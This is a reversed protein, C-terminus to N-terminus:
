KELILKHSESIGYSDEISILYFGAKLNTVDMEIHSKNIFNIEHAVLRGTIDTMTLVVKIAEDSSSGMRQIFIRDKAPNPFVNYIRNETINQKVPKLENANAMRSEEYGFDMTFNNFEMGYVLRMISIANMVAMTPETKSAIEFVMSKMTSDMSFVTKGSDSLNSIMLIINKWDLYAETSDNIASLKENVIATQGDNLYIGIVSMKFYIDDVSEMLDMYQDISDNEIYYDALDYIYSFNENRINELERQIGFLTYVFPNDGQKKTLSDVIRTDSIALLVNLYDSIVENSIPLNMNMVMEFDEEELKDFRNMLAILVQDDLPSNNLLSDRLNESSIISDNIASILSETNVSDIWEEIEEKKILLSDQIVELSDLADRLETTTRALSPCSATTKAIGNDFLTITASTPIPITSLDGTQNHHYYVYPFQSSIRKDPGDFDWTNFENGAPKKPNIGSSGQQPPLISTGGNIWCVPISGPNNCIFDSTHWLNCRVKLNINSGNTGIGYKNELFKNGITGFGIYGSTKSTNLMLVGIAAQGFENDKISTKDSGIVVVGNFDYPQTHTLYPNQIDGFINGYWIQDNWGANIRIGANNM